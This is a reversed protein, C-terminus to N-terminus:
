SELLEQLQRLENLKYQNLENDFCKGFEQLLQIIISKSNQVRFYAPAPPINMRNFYADVDKQSYIQGNLPDIYFLIRNAIQLTEGSLDYQQEMHALIFQKPIRVAKVPVDLLEALVLYIIGNSIGNGKKSELTKNILFEEPHEYGTEVGRLKHYNFLISSFVNAQELPTLYQSLELWISRRIRELEKLVNGKDLEPYHYRAVLLAGELLDQSGKKWNTFDNTLEQFHLRHILQEIRIQVDPNLTNEWLNELNPIIGKGFEVIRHSVTSYVEADPDDILQFLADIERSAIVNM